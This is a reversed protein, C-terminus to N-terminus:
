SRTLEGHGPGPQSGGIAGPAGCEPCRAPSARVDYGCRRCLGARVRRSGRWWRALAIGPLTATGFVLCWYPIDAHVVVGTAAAPEFLGSAGGRHAYVDFWTWPDRSPIHDVHQEPPIWERGVFLGRSPDEPGWGALWVPFGGQNGGSTDLHFSLEGRGQRSSLDVFTRPDVWSIGLSRWRMAEVWAVTSLICAVFSGAVLFRALRQPFPRSPLQLARRRATLRKVAWAIPVVSTGAAFLWLPVVGVPELPQPAWVVESDRGDETWVTVPALDPADPRDGTGFALFGGSGHLQERHRAVHVAGRHLIFRTYGASTQLRATDTANYSRAAWLVSLTALLLMSLAVATFAGRLM